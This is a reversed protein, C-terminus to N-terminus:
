VIVGLLYSPVVIIVTSSITDDAEHSTSTINESESACSVLVVDSICIDPNYM